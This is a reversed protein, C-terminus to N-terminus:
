RVHSWCQLFTHTWPILMFHPSSWILNSGSTQHYWTSLCRWGWANRNLQCDQRWRWIPLIELNNDILLNAIMKYRGMRSPVLLITELLALAPGIIQLFLAILRVWIVLSLIFLHLSGVHVEQEEVLFIYSDIRLLLCWATGVICSHKTWHLACCSGSCGM